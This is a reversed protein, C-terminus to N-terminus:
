QKLAAEKLACKIQDLWTSLFEIAYPLANLHNFSAFATEGEGLLSLELSLKASSGLPREVEGKPM